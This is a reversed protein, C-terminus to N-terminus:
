WNQRPQLGVGDGCVEIRILLVLRELGKGLPKLVLQM